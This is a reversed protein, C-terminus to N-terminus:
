EWAKWSNFKIACAPCDKRLSRYCKILDREKIINKEEGDIEKEMMFSCVSCKVVLYELSYRGLQFFPREISFEPGERSYM